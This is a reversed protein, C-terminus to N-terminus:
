WSGAAVLPRRELVSRGPDYEHSESLELGMSGLCWRVM